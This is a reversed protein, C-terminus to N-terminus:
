AKKVPTLVMMKDDGVRRRSQITFGEFGREFPDFDFPKIADRGLVTSGKLLILEDVLGSDLFSRALKPGGEVLLSTIGEDALEALDDNLDEGPLDIANFAEAGFVVREPSRHELGPLRVDLRPNDARMTGAGVAIADNRARLGHMLRNTSSSTIAIQGEDKRGVAGDISLALKLTVFPRGAQMRMIHGRHAHLAAKRLDAFPELHVEVGADQLHQAGTGSVRPDPDGLAIFISAIGAEILAETCPPTRGHHNCPELSVYAVADRALDGADRLAETEAHPRGGGKTKGRGVVRGDRVILCGVAPNPWTRGQARTGLRISAALFDHDQLSPDQANPM